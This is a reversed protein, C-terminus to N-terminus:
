VEFLEDIFKKIDEPYCQDLAEPTISSQRVRNDPDILNFSFLDNGEVKKVGPKVYHSIVLKYGPPIKKIFEIFDKTM